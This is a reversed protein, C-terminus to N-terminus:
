KSPTSTAPPSYVAAPLAISSALPKSPSSTANPRASLVIEKGDPSWAPNYSACDTPFGPFLRPPNDDSFDFAYLRPIKDTKKQMCVLIWDNPGGWAMTCNSNDVEPKASSPLIIKFGKKEGEVSVAAIEPKGDPLVGKFCIWQGDPSWTIGWYIQRYPKDLLMHRQKKDLDYICLNATGVVNSYAGGGDHTTYALENGTPSWQVGWGAGDVHKRNSGDANMIWIGRQPRYETYTIRKDDPSWSPMAGPGMDKPSGGEADVVFIHADSCGEGMVSRWTDFAIRKGDHSWDPSGNATFEPPTAIRRLDDGDTNWVIISQSSFRRLVLVMGGHRKDFDDPRGKAEDNLSIKLTDGKCECIGLMAGDPSKTDITCPTQAPDVTYSMESMVEKGMRLTLTKETFVVSCPRQKQLPLNEAKGNADGFSLSKAQWAGILSGGVSVDASAAENKTMSVNAENTDRTTLWQVVYTKDASDAACLLAPGSLIALAAIALIGWCVHLTPRISKCSRPRTPM